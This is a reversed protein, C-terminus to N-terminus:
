TIYRKELRRCIGDNGSSKLTCMRAPSHHFTWHHAYLILLLTNTPDLINSLPAPLVKSCPLWSLRFLVFTIKKTASDFGYNM